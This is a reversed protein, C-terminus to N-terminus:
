NESYFYNSSTVWNQGTHAGIMVWVPVSSLIDRWPTKQRVLDKGTSLHHAKSHGTIQTFEQDSISPHEAPSNYVVFHWVIYWICTIAGSVYFISEWGARDALFGASTLVVVTGVPAGANILSSFKTRESPPSWNAVVQQLAPYCFGKVYRFLRQYLCKTLWRTRWSLWHIKGNCTRTCYPSRNSLWLTPQSGNADSSGPYRDSTNRYRFSAERRVASDAM